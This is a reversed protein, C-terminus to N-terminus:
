QALYVPWGAVTEPASYGAEVYARLPDLLDLDRGDTAVPRDVLLPPLGPAGPELSGSDVVAAPAAAEFEALIEAVLADTAYGRTLLPYLYVYRTAPARRALEYVRADNGWVFLRDDADTRERVFAAAEASRQNSARFPVQEDAAGAAGVVLSLGLTLAVPVGILMPARSRLSTAAAHFGLGTLVSAPLVLPTAYHGYLRGQILILVTGAVLWAFSALALRPAFLRRRHIAALGLGLVLPLLVLLTWPVISWTSAGGRGAVARYAASYTLLADAAEALGGNWRLGITVVVLVVALGTAVRIARAAMRPGIALIGVAALVPASQLSVAIAMGAALGATVWRGSTSSVLAGALPLLAFSESLGGGLNLLYAGAGSAGLTSAVAASAATAGSGRLLAGVALMAGALCGVTLLWVVRWATGPDSSIAHALVYPLYTGVPKHDWVDVYLADGELLRWGVTSFISADFSPGIELGPLMLLAVTAIPAALALTRIATARDFRSSPEARLPPSQM